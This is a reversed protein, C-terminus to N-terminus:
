WSSFNHIYGLHHVKLLYDNYKCTFSITLKGSPISKYQSNIIAKRHLLDVINFAPTNIDYGLQKKKSFFFEGSLDKGQAGIFSNVQEGAVTHFTKSRDRFSPMTIEKGVEAYSSGCNQLTSKHITTPM